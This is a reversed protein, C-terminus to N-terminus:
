FTFTANDLDSLTTLTGQVALILSNGDDLQIIVGDAATEYAAAQVDALSSISAVGSFDLVDTTVDFDTLSTNGTGDKIIFTDAGAGGTMVDSDGLSTFIMDRGSGGVVVDNGDGGRLENDGGGVANIVDDGNGARVTDNGAGTEITDNGVGGRLADNGNGGDIIDNGAGGAVKDNGAGGNLGYGATLGLTYALGAGDANDDGTEGRIVDDGAGGTIHDGGDGGRLTNTETALTSADTIVDVGAGGDVTDNGVGGDLTDNGANGNLVDDGINGLLSDNLEAGSINDDGALGDEAGYAAGAAGVFTDDGITYDITATWIVSVTQETTGDSLVVDYTFTATDGINGQATIAAADGTFIVTQAASNVVFAGEANTFTGGATSADIGDVSVISTATFPTSTSFATGTWAYSVPTTLLVAGASTVGAGGPQTVGVVGSSAVGGELTVGDGFSIETFATDFTDAAVLDTTDDDLSWGTTASYTIAGNLGTFASTADSLIASDAGTDTAATNGVNAASTAGIISTTFNVIDDGSTGQVLFDTEANITINAMNYESRALLSNFTHGM